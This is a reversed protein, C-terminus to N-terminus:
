RPRMVSKRKPSEPQGVRKMSASDESVQVLQFGVPVEGVSVDIGVPFKLQEIEVLLNQVFHNINIPNSHPVSVFTM